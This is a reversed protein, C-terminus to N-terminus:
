DSEEDEFDEDMSDDVSENDMDVDVEAGGEVDADEDEEDEGGLADVMMQISVEKQKPPRVEKSLTKRVTAAKNKEKVAVAKKGKTKYPGRKGYPKRNYKKGTSTANASRDKLKEKEMKRLASDKHNDFFKEGYNFSLEEGGSIDRTAYLAMRHETNCMLVKPACNWKGAISNIFRMKNGLVMSDVTQDGTMDFLYSYGNLLLYLGSREAQKWNLKAGLYEGIYEGKKIDEGAYLGIGHVTSQGILTRKPVNRQIQCNQCKDRFFAPDEEHRNQPDLADYVGCTGCLDPDCERDAKLCPCRSEESCVKGKRACKCGKFRNKCSADCGCSKECFRHACHCVGEECPGQHNCPFFVVVKSQRNPHGYLAENDFEGDREPRQEVMQPARVPKRGLTRQHLHTLTDFLPCLSDEVSDTDDDEADSDYLPDPPRYDWMSDLGHVFCPYVHCIRCALDFHTTASYQPREIATQQGPTELFKAMDLKPSWRLCYVVKFCSYDPHERYPGSVAYFALALYKFKLPKLAFDKEEERLASLKKSIALSQPARGLEKRTERLLKWPNMERKAHKIKLLEAKVENADYQSDLLFRLMDEDSLHLEELFAEFYPQWQRGIQSYKTEVGRSSLMRFHFQGKLEKKIEDESLEDRETAEPWFLLDRDSQVLQSKRIPYYTKYHPVDISKSTMQAMGVYLKTPQTGKAHPLSKVTFTFQNDNPKGAAPTSITPADWWNASSQKSSM